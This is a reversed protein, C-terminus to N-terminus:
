CGFNQWICLMKSENQCISAASSSGSKSVDRPLFSHAPPAFHDKWSPHSLNGPQFLYPLAEGDVVGQLLGRSLRQIGEFM